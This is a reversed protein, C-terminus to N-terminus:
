LKAKIEMSDPKTKGTAENSIILSNSTSCNYNYEIITHNSEQINELNYKELLHVDFDFVYKDKLKEPTVSFYITKTKFGVQRVTLAYVENLNVDFLIDEADKASHIIKGQRMLTYNVKIRRNNSNLFHGNILLVQAKSSSFLIFLFLSLLIGSIKM